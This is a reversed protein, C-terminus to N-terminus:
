RTGFNAPSNPPAKDFPATNSVMSENDSTDFATLAAAGESGDPIPTQCETATCVASHPMIPSNGTAISPNCATEGKACFYLKYGAIDSETNPTWVFIEDAFAPSAILVLLLVWLRKM